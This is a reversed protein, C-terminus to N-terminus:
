ASLPACSLANVEVCIVLRLVAFMADRLVPCIALKDLETMADREPACTWDSVLACTDEKVGLAVAPSVDTFM